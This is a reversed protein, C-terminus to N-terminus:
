SLPLFHGWGGGSFILHLSSATLSHGQVDKGKRESFVSARDRFGRLIFVLQRKLLCLFCCDIGSPNVGVEGELVSQIRVSQAFPTLVWWCCRLLELSSPSHM